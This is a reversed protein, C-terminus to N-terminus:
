ASFCRTEKKKIPWLQTSSLLSIPETHLISALSFGLWVFLNGNDTNM